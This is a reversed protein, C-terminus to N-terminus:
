KGQRMRVEGLDHQANISSVFAFDEDFSNIKPLISIRNSILKEFSADVNHDERVNEFDQHKGPFFFFTVHSLM